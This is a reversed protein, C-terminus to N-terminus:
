RYVDRWTFYISGLVSAPGAENSTWTACTRGPSGSWSM